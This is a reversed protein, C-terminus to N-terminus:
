AKQSAKKKGAKKKGSKKQMARKRSGKKRSVTHGNALWMAAGVIGSLLRPDCSLMVDREEASLGAEDFVRTPEAQYAAMLEPDSALDVLLESLSDSM